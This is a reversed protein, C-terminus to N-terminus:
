KLILYIDQVLSLYQDTYSGSADRIDLRETIQSCSSKSFNWLLRTASKKASTHVRCLKLLNLGALEGEFLIETERDAPSILGLHGNETLNHAAFRLLTAYNLSGEHRASARRTDESHAGTSFFPPNCLILDYGVESASERFDGTILILRQAWPSTEFNAKAANAAAPELEVATIQAEKALDAAMLALLGSGTGIDLVTKVSPCATLIWAGLLVSDSCIKQGCGHDDVSFRRFRFNAM